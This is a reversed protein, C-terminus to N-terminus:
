QASEDEEPMCERVLIGLGLGQMALAVLVFAARAGTGTLLSFASMTIGLGSIMLLIGLAKM